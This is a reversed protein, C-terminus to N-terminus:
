TAAEAAPSPPAAREHASRVAFVVDVSIPTMCGGAAPHLSPPPAATGAGEEEVMAAGTAPDTPRLHARTDESGPSIGILSGSGERGVGGPRRAM